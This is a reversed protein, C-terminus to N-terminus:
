PCYPCLNHCFPVHLYLSTREVRPPTWGAAPAEFVWRQDPGVLHRRVARTVLRSLKHGLRNM